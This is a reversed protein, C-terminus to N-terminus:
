TGFSAPNGDITGDLNTDPAGSGSETLDYIGDNDSDLDLYDVVGDNDSDVPVIGTGYIDFLGDHNLDTATASVFATGQSEMNDLIGDNDSDGDLQDAIGDGDSDKPVCPAIIAFSARAINTDSLNKHTYTLSTTQYINFSFTGTGAALPIDSNIRFRIEFSSYSTIGSEYVGDYNTDILLQNGQNLVTITKDTDCKLTFDSDSTIENGTESAPIYQIKLSIPQAFTFETKINNGKGAATASFFSTTNGGFATGTFSSGGPTITRTYSNVYSGTTVANPGNPNAPLITMDVALDGLSETCNSIGDNDNDKDINDNVADHDMDTPCSSVPIEDSILTTGCNAITAKVYYYGPQTPSYSNNTAGSIAGGNFYWQFVDFPSLSNVSLQTNPLCSAQTPDLVAFAIEPKFTFGSYFGGFTANVDSGYSALYLQSTSFAAVNGTLGTITYTEYDPNGVVSTPGNTTVGPLFNLAPLSYDVGDINFTLTSGTGTVITIRGIFTRPGIKNIQPINDIIHPTSCSLPPVFFLKQNAFSTLSNDGIAQYAFVKKSTHIYLNGNASYDNGDLAIYEGANLGSYENTGDGNLDIDTFDQDVVLIIREVIAQGTSKIFIYDQGVLDLSVIQDFGLDLNANANSGCFSGCNVAIPKDSYVLAGILADRNEDHPGEVAMVFSEGANLIVPAPANGVSINNILQAGFKINDFQVLTNNETALISVFTYHNDSYNAADVNTNLMAGIRFHNGLGAIGKSVLAGAQNTQGAIVRASVYVLDEAEIVYGKDSRITNVQSRETMLQTNTGFGINYIYPASRSVTGLITAGGLQMIKFNVPNTNPTSIYLYQEEASSSFNDSGSLPPIYHTKSFQAFCSATVLLFFLLTIKKM